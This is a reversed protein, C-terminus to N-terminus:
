IFMEKFFLISITTNAAAILYIQSPDFCIFPLADADAICHKTSEEIGLLPGQLEYPQKYNEIIFAPASGAPIEFGTTITVGGDGLFISNAATTPVSIVFSTVLSQLSLSQSLPTPVTAVTLSTALFDQRIVPRSPRLPAM